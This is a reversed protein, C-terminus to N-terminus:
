VIPQGDEDGHKATESVCKGFANKQTGESKEGAPENTGWAAQFAVPDADREDRCARAANVLDNDGKAARKCDRMAHKGPHKGSRDGFAAQFASRDSKKFANCEKKAANNKAPKGNGNKASATAAPLAVAVACVLAITIARKM